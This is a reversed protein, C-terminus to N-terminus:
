SVRARQLLDRAAENGLRAIATEDDSVLRGEWVRVVGNVMTLKAPGDNGALFIAGLPDGAAGASAVRELSFATIDAAMSPGLRGIDKRGLIDAAIRTAHSLVDEPSMWSKGPDAEHDTGVRSALLALRIEGVFSGGDNSAAGDVGLGLRIGRERIEGVRTMPYGLRFITHPCHVVSVKAKAFANLEEDNLQTCHALFTRECLWDARELFGLPSTGTTEVALKRELPRPHFHTHLLLKHQHALTAIDKMLRPRTYTPTTPGLAVRRMSYSASNHLKAVDEKLRDLLEDEPDLIRQTSSGLRTELDGELTPLCGRVLELRIGMEEVAKVQADLCKRGLEPLLYAHDVTTTCGSLVLESCAVRTAARFHEPELRAWLPYLRELWKLSTTMATGPVARTISQFFHHHLNIFGPMAVCGKLSYEQDIDRAPMPEKGLAAISRGDVLMWGNAIAAAGPDATYIWDINRLAIM